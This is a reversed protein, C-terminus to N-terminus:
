FLWRKDAVPEAIEEEGNEELKRNAFYLGIIVWISAYFAAMFNLMLYVPVAYMMVKNFTFTGNKGRKLFATVMIWGLLALETLLGIVGSETVIGLLGVDLTTAVTWFGFQPYFYHLMGRPFANYGYGFLLNGEEKMYLVATWEVLRSNAASNANLGFKSSIQFQQGQQVPKEPQVFDPDQQSGDATELGPVHINAASLVTNLSSKGTELMAEGFGGNTFAMGTFLVVAMAICVWVRKFFLRPRTVVLLAAVGAFCLWASRSMTCLLALVDLALILSYRHKGTKELRYYCLLAMFTCYCGFTIANAMGYARTMEMRHTLATNTRPDVIQLVSAIDFNFLTQCIGIISLVACTLLTMDICSDLEKRNEITDAIMIALLVQELVMLAIRKVENSFGFRMNVVSIIVQVGFYILLPLPAFWKRTKWKDVVWFGMLVLILIRQATLLPLSASLEVAFGDPLVGIFACALYLYWKKQRLAFYFVPGFLVLLLIWKLINMM